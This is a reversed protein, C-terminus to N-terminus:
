EHTYSVERVGPMARLREALALVHHQSTEALGIDLRYEAPDDGPEVHLYKLRLAQVEVAEEVKTLPVDRRLAITLGRPRRNRFLWRELPKLWALIVLILFTTALASAYLGGGVALGVAAVAWLSAATTLGHIVNRRLIITGAGLFGIGSVVQAAVRSPDLSVKPHGLADMFGFSSVMMFLSAGLCVLMHTRLGAAWDLRERELGVVSGLAAALLLRIVMQEQSIM